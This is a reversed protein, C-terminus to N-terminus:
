AGHRRKRHLPLVVPLYLMGVVIATTVIDAVTHYRQYLMLLVYGALSIWCARRTTPAHAALFMVLALAAATHTSYDMGMAPWLQLRSDLFMLGYAVFAGAALRTMRAGLVQWHRAFLPRLLLALAALALLPTYADAIADLTEYDLM